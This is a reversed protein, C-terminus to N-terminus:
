PPMTQDTKLLTAVVDEVRTGRFFEPNVDTKARVPNAFVFDRFDEADILGDEVLEYAEEAADRMDSIDFHGIDSSYIANLRAGM